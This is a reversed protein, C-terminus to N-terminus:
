DYVHDADEAGVGAEAEAGVEVGVGAEAGRAVALGVAEAALVNDVGGARVM